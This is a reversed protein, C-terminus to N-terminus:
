RRRVGRARSTCPGDGIFRDADPYAVDVASFTGGSQRILLVPDTYTFAIVDGLVARCSAGPCLYPSRVREGATSHAVVSTV